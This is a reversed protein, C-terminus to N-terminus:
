QPNQKDVQGDTVGKQDAVMKAVKVQEETLVPEQKAPEADPVPWMIGVVLRLCEIAEVLTVKDDPKNMVSLIIDRKEDLTM